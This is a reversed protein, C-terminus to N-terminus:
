TFYTMSIGLETEAKMHNAVDALIATTTMEVINCTAGTYFRVMLAGPAGIANILRYYVAGVTYGANQTLAALAFPMNLSLVGVPSSVSSVSLLGTVSVERGKKTYAMTDNNLTITGSTGCTLAGTFKGEEYDDMTNPDASPVATAPFAIQGGTLDITPITVQGTFVPTAKNAKNALRYDPM